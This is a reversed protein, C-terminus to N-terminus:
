QDIFPAPQLTVRIDRREGDRLVTITVTDGVQRQRLQDLLDSNRRVPQGDIAVILDGPEVGGRQNRRTPQIGAEEAAGGPYVDQVLAGPQEIIGNDVAQEVISDSFIAIGLAPRAATEGRILRTAVENITDVPVAFGIGAYAGSPSIIATNMGILRGASDLLPGGSNGPNIAADTQLVGTIKQGNEGSVERDLGSILGKTLTASFGFPDGIAFVTQGIQLQASEGVPIPRLKDAPADIKLVAIDNTRDRGVLRAPWSSGDQLTVHARAAGEIVHNNTVIHGQENWIFGSGAGRPIEFIDRSFRNQALLASTVHVVSPVAERYLDIQAQEDAWLDNRPAAARQRADPDHLPGPGSTLMRWVLVGVLIVLIAVLWGSAGNQSYGATQRQGSLSRDM